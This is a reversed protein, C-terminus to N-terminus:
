REMRGSPASSVANAHLDAINLICGPDPGLIDGTYALARARCGGCIYKYPCAGCGGKLMDRDRLAMFLKSESWIKKFPTEVVNGVVVSPIFVCPTVDGNPQLAAYIRGAGCGGIYEALSSIIPDGKVYFHTAVIERGGSLICSVRAFQPATSYIELRRKQNELYLKKLFEEREEPTLDLNKIDEGRGVPVFNFFVVRQVGIEEALDLIDDVEDFNFRTVTTAMATSFGLEVANKLGRVAKEWAGKVGRFQDHKEPDASDVSVEVYRLGLKKLKEAYGLDALALGNTALATYMGADAAAKLVVPFHPHITPEGGSFAVAAVGAQDLQRITNLKEELSLEISFTLGAKQYCHKCRLNCANTFNWVILFPAPLKQPVTVGYLALGELVLALGRRVAPDKLAEAVEEEKGHFCAIAAKFVLSLIKSYFRATFCSNADHEAILRLAELAVTTKRGNVKIEEALKKILIKAVPTKTTLRLGALLAPFGGRRRNSM